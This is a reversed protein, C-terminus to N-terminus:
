RNRRHPRASIGWKPGRLSWRQERRGAGEGTVVCFDVASARPAVVSIDLGGAPNEWVGIRTLTDNPRPIKVSSPQLVTENPRTINSPTM